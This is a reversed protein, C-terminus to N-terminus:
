RGGSCGPAGTRCQGDGGPSGPKRVRLCGREGGEENVATVSDEPLSFGPRSM